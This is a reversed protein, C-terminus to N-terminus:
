TAATQAYLEDLEGFRAYNAAQKLYKTAESWVKTSQAFNQHELQMAKIQAANERKAAALARLQSLDIPSLFASQSVSM